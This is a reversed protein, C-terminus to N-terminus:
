MLANELIEVQGIGDVLALDIRMPTLLGTPLAGIYAEAGACLRGIQKPGLHSAAAAFSKSAKVEVFVVEAGKRFILDIEGASSRWREELLDYGRNQYLRAVSAEASLGFDYAKRGRERRRIEPAKQLYDFPIM